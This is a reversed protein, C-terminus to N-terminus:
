RDQPPMYKPLSSPRVKERVGECVAVDGRVASQACKIVAPHDDPLFSEMADIVRSNEDYRVTLLGKQCPTQCATMWGALGLSVMEGWAMVPAWLIKEGTSTTELNGAFGRDYVYWAILVADQRATREPKGLTAEISDRTAHEQVITLDTAPHGMYASKTACGSVLAVSCFFFVVHMLLLEIRRPLGLLAKSFFQPQRNTV